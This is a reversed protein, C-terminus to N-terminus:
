DNRKRMSENKIFLKVMEDAYRNTAAGGKALGARIFHGTYKPDTLFKNLIIGTAVGPLIGTAGTAAISGTGVLLRVLKNGNTPDAMAKSVSLGIVRSVDRIGKVEAQIKAAESQSRGGVNKFIIDSKESGIKDLAAAFKIPHFNGDADIAKSRADAVIQHKVYDVGSKGDSAKGMADTFTKTQLPGVADGGVVKKIVKDSNIKGSNFQKLFENEKYPVVKEINAKDAKRLADLLKTNGSDTAWKNVDQNVSNQVQTLLRYDNDGLMGSSKKARRSYQGVMSKLARADDFTLAEDAGGDQIRKFFSEIKSDPFRKLFDTKDMLESVSAKTKVPIIPAIDPTNDAINKVKDYLAKVHSKGEKMKQTMSELVAPGTDLVGPKINTELKSAAKGLAEAQGIRAEKNHIFPLNDVTDNVMNGFGRVRPSASNMWRDINTVPIGLSAAKDLTPTNKGAVSAMMDAIGGGAKALGRGAAGLGFGIAASEGAGGLTDTLIGPLDEKTSAGLASAGGIMASAKMLGPINKLSAGPMPVAFSGAVNGISYASPNAAEAETNAQRARDRYFKYNTNFDGQGGKLLDRLAYATADIEDGSNLTAGSVIGKLLSKNPSIDTEDAIGSEAPTEVDATVGEKIFVQASPNDTQAKVADAYTDAYIIEGANAPITEDAQATPIILNLAKEALSTRKAYDPAKPREFKDTFAQTATAVDTSSKLADLASKHTTNLEHWLYDAQTSIDNADSNNKFAFKNLGTLRTNHWQALGGSTGGDGIASPDLSSEGELNGVIGAAQHPELGKSTFFDLLFKRKNDM